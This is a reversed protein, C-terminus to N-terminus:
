LLDGYIIKGEQQCVQFVGGKSAYSKFEAITMFIVDVPVIRDSRRGYYDKKSSSVEEQTDFIAILNLDSQDTMTGKAALGFLIVAHPMCVSLLRFIEDNVLKDIEGSKLPKALLSILSM